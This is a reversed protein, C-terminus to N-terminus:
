HSYYLSLVNTPPLFFILLKELDIVLNIRLRNAFVFEKCNVFESNIHSKPKPFNM